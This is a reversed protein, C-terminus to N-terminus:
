DEELVGEQILHRWTATNVSKRLADFRLDLSDAEGWGQNVLNEFEDGLIDGLTLMLRQTAHSRPPPFLTKRPGDEKVVGDRLHWVEVFGNQIETEGERLLELKIVIVKMIKGESGELLLKVDEKLHDYPEAYGFEFVISPWYRRVPALAVDPV